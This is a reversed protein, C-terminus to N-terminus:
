WDVSTIWTSLIDLMHHAVGWQSYVTQLLMRLTLLLSFINRSKVNGSVFQHGRVFHYGNSASLLDATLNREDDRKKNSVTLLVPHWVTSHGFKSFAFYITVAAFLSAPLHAPYVWGIKLSEAHDQIM